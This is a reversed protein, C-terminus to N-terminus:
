VVASALTVLAAVVLLGLIFRRFWEVPVRRRVLVGASWGAVMAPIAVVLTTGVDGTMRDATFFLVAGALSALGLAVASQQFSDPVDLEQLMPERM